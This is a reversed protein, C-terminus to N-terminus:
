SFSLPRFHNYGMTGLVNVGKVYTHLRMQIVQELVDCLQGIAWKRIKMGLLNWHVKGKM